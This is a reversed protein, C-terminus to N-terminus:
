ILKYKITNERITSLENNQSLNINTLHELQRELNKIKHLANKLQENLDLSEKVLIENRSTLNTLERIHQTYIFNDDFFSLLDIWVNEDNLNTLSSEINMLFRIKDNSNQYMSIKDISNKYNYLTQLINPNTSNSHRSIVCDLYQNLTNNLFDHTRIQTFYKNKLTLINM